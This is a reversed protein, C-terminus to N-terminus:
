RIYYRYNNGDALHIVVYLTKLSDEVERLCEIIFHTRDPPARCRVRQKWFRFASGDNYVAILFGNYQYGDGYFAEATFLDRINIDRKMLNKVSADIDVYVNGREPTYHTFVVSTNDPLVDYSFRVSNLTFEYDDTKVTDGFGLYLIQSTESAGQAEVYEEPPASEAEVTETVDTNMPADEEAGSARSYTM